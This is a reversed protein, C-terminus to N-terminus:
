YPHIETVLKRRNDRVRQPDRCVGTMYILQFKPFFLILVSNIVAMPVVVVVVVVFVYFGNQIAAM